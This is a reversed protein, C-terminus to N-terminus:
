DNTQSEEKKINSLTQQRLIMLFNTFSLMEELLPKISIARYLYDFIYFLITPLGAIFAVYCFMKVAHDDKVMLEITKFFSKTLDYEIYAHPTVITLIMVMMIFLFCFCYTMNKISNKIIKKSLSILSPTSYEEHVDRASMYINLKEIIHRNEANYFFHIWEKERYRNDKGKEKIHYFEDSEGNTNLVRITLIVMEEISNDYYNANKEIVEETVSTINGAYYCPRKFIELLSM